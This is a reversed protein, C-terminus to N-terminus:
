SSNGFKLSLDTPIIVDKLNDEGIEEETKILIDVVSECELLASNDDNICEWKHLERLIEYTGNSRLFVRSERTASLQFLSELLMKRLDVNDERQKNLDLYQLQIPLKEIEDDTFEEPGALPLLLYPLININNLLWNHRTTDFCLNRVLRTIGMKRIKNSHHLFPLLRSIFHKSPVCIMNRGRTSRSINAFVPGLYNLNCKFNNSESTTFSSVIEDFVSENEAIADILLEALNEFTSVNSLVMAWCDALECNVDLIHKILNHMLNPEQKLLLNAGKKEASINIICSMANKAIFSSVDTSLIILSSIVNSEEYLLALGDSTGTLNLVDKIAVSKLDQRANIQLFSLLETINKNEMM